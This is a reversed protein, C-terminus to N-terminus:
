QLYLGHAAAYLLYLRTGEPLLAAHAEEVPEIEGDTHFFVALLFRLADYVAAMKEDKPQRASRKLAAFDERVLEANGLGVNAMGHLLLATARIEPCPSNLFRQSERAADEYKAQFYHHAALAVTREEEDSLSGIMTEARIGTFPQWLPMFLKETRDM